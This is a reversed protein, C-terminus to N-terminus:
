NSEQKEEKLFNKQKQDLLWSSYNGKGSPIGKGQIWSQVGMETVNDISHDTMLLQWSM